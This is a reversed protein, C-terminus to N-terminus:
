LLAICQEWVSRMGEYLSLSDAVTSLTSLLIDREKQSTATALLARAKRAMAQNEEEDQRHLDKMATLLELTTYTGMPECRAKRVPELCCSEVLAVVETRRAGWLAAMAM